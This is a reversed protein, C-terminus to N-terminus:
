RYVAHTRIPGLSDRVATTDARRNARSCRGIGICKDGWFLPEGDRGWDDILNVVRQCHGYSAPQPGRPLKIALYTGFLALLLTLLTLLFLATAHLYLTAM